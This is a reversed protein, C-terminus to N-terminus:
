FFPLLANVTVPAECSYFDTSIYSLDPVSSASLNDPFM